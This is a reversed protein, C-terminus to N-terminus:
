PAKTTVTTTGPPVTTGRSSANSRPDANPLAQVLKKAADTLDITVRQASGQGRALKQRDSTADSVNGHTEAKGSSQVHTAGTGTVKKLASGFTNVDSQSLDGQGSATAITDGSNAVVATGLVVQDYYSQFAESISVQREKGQKDKVILKMSKDGQSVLWEGYNSRIGTDEVARAYSQDNNSHGYQDPGLAAVANTKLGQFESRSLTDGYMGSKSLNGSLYSGPSGSPTGPKHMVGKLDGKAYAATAESYSMGLFQEAAGGVGKTNGRATASTSIRGLNGDKIFGPRNIAANQKIQKEYGTPDATSNAVYLLFDEPSNFSAGTTGEVYQMASALDTSGGNNGIEIAMERAQAATVTDGQKLGLKTRAADVAGQINPMVAQVQRMTVQNTAVAYDTPNSFAETQVQALTKGQQAAVLLQMNRSTMTGTLDTNNFVQPGQAALWSTMGAAVATTGGSAGLSQALQSYTQVYQKRATDLAIGSSAAADSVQKLSEALGTLDRQGQTANVSLLQLSDEATMGYRRYNSLGFAEAAGARGAQGWGQRQVGAYLKSRDGAGMGFPDLLSRSEFLQSEARQGYAAGQGGGLMAVWGRNAESQAHLFHNGQQFAEAGAAVASLGVAAGTMIGAMAPAAEGAATAAATGAAGEGALGEAIAQMGEGRGAQALQSAINQASKMWRQSRGFKTAQEHPVAQGNEDTVVGSPLAFGGPLEMPATTQSLGGPQYSALRNQVWDAARARITSLSMEHAQGFQQRTHQVAGARAREAADAGAAGMAVDEVERLGEHKKRTRHKPEDGADATTTVTKPSQSTEMGGGVIVKPAAGGTSPIAGTAGSALLSAVTVLKNATDAMYSATREAVVQQEQIRDLAERQAAIVSDLVAQFGSALGVGGGPLGGGVGPVGGGFASSLPVGAISLASTTRVADIGQIAGRHAAAAVDQAVNAAQMKPSMAISNPAASRDLYSSGSDDAAM